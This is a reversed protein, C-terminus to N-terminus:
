AEGQDEEGDEDAHEEYGQNTQGGRFYCSSSSPSSFYVVDVSVPWCSRRMMEVAMGLIVSSNWEAPSMPQYPM